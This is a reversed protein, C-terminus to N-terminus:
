KGLMAAMIRSVVNGVPPIARSLFGLYNFFHVMEVKKQKAIAKAIIKAVTQPKQSYLPLLKISLKAGLSHTDVNNYFGTDVMYPYVTTVMINYKKLEYYLIESISGLALKISAYAGWTPLRFFAQGSSVNVIHGQGRKIMAPLFTYIHNLSGMLNVDILKEWTEFDTDALEGHHGVGANNVLIDVAGVEKEIQGAIEEVQQRDSVDVQFHHIHASTSKLQSSARELDDTRIDILVLTNGNVALERALYFGIGRAAGTILITKNKIKAM